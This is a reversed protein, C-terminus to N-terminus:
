GTILVTRARLTRNGARDVVLIGVTAAQSPRSRLAKRVRACGATSRSGRRAAGRRGAALLRPKSGTRVPRTARPLRLTATAAATCIEAPCTVTLVIAGHRLARQRRGGGLEVLPATTNLPPAPAAVIAGPTTTADGAAAVCAAGLLGRAEDLRLQYRGRMTEGPRLV